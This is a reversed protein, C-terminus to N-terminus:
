SATGGTSIIGKKKSASVDTWPIANQSDPEEDLASKLTSQKELM